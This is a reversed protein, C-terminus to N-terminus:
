SVMRAHTIKRRQEGSSGSSRIRQFTWACQRIWVRDDERMSFRQRAFCKMVSTAPSIRLRVFDVRTGGLLDSLEAEMSAIALLGPKGQPEFEVLLDVDSEPRTTGKLVSGFLSLKRIRHRACFDALVDDDIPLRTTM